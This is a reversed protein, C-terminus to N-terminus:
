FRVENCPDKLYCNNCWFGKSRYWGRNEMCEDVVGALINLERELMTYQGGTRDVELYLDGPVWYHIIKYNPNDPYIHRYAYSSLTAGAGYELIDESPERSSFDLYIVQVTDTVLIADVYGAYSKNNITLNYTYPSGLIEPDMSKIISAFRELISTADHILKDYNSRAKGGGRVDSPPIVKSILSNFRRATHRWPYRDSNYNSLYAYCSKRLADMVQGRLTSNGRDLGMFKRFFLKM